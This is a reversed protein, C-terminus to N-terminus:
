GSSFEACRRRIQDLKLLRESRHDSITHREGLRTEARIAQM